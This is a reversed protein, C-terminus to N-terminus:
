SKLGVPGGPLQTMVMQYVFLGAPERRDGAQEVPPFGAGPNM